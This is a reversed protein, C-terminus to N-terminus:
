KEQKATKPDDLRPVNPFLVRELKDVARRQSEPVAHTYVQLTTGLDSHGLQAQALRLPEGLDSLLTAHTHRFVHWGVKPLGVSECAPYVVRKLVNAPDLPTGKRSPFVLAGPEISKLKQLASVAIPSLPIDRISSKTKPTGFRGEYVSDRIQLVGRDLDVHKWRLAFLESRRLGTLLALLVMTRVPETLVTLLTGVQEPILFRVERPPAAAPLKVRLAPNEQLYGWEIATGLVRSLLNRLHRVTKSSYERAKETLFRQVDSPQIEPLQMEGFYPLLHKHLLVRHPRQTSFKYNPLVDPEWLDEVFQRFTLLWRPRSKGSNIARLREDLLARAEKRSRIESLTGLVESRLVRGATGDPHIVDERWRAVWVKRRKGRVFLCGTQYRRRAM